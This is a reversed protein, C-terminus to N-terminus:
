GLRAEREEDILRRDLTVDGWGVPPEGLPLAEFFDTTERAIRASQGEDENMTLPPLEGTRAMYEIVTRIAWSMTLGERDLVRRAARVDEAEVRANIVTMPM